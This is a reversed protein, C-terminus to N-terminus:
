IKNEEMSKAHLYGKLVAPRIMMISHLLMKITSPEQVDKWYAVGRLYHRRTNENPRLHLTKTNFYEKRYKRAICLCLYSDESILIRKASEPNETELWAKKSFAFLGALGKFPSVQTIARKIFTRISYPKDLFGFSILGVGNRGIRQLHERIMPDLYFDADVNLIVDNETLKYGQRRLFAKRSAWGPAPEDLEVFKTSQYYDLTKAIRKSLKLSEDTCRDFILVVEDPKLRYTSPLSYPLYKEENHIPMVVSFKM